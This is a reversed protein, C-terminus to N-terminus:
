MVVYVFECKNNQHLAFMFLPAGFVLPKRKKKEKKETPPKHDVPWFNHGNRVDRFIQPHYVVKYM